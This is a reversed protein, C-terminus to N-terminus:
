GHPIMQDQQHSGLARQAGPAELGRERDEFVREHPVLPARAVQAFLHQPLEFPAAPLPLCM